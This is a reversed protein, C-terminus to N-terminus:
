GPLAVGMARLVTVAVFTGVAARVAVDFFLWSRTPLEVIQQVWGRLEAAPKPWYIGLRGGSERKAM